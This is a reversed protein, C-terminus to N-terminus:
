GETDTMSFWEAVNGMHFEAVSLTAMSMNAVQIVECHCFVLALNAGM